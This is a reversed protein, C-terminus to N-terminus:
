KVVVKEPNSLHSYLLIGKLLDEARNLQLDQIKEVRARDEPSLSYLGGLSRQFTLAAEEEDTMPVVVDPTIGHEHIVRHSPTYYKATTLKLASGDDLPFISQVSGKGFTKEGLIVARHLDQLCGTVIESASASGLNVLVVMPMGKVEDGHGDARRTSNQDPDRGETTVVLQGRPLFKSCVGVAEDLLGGPNGRLDLILAQMGEAKLTKLADELEDSTNDGFSTIRIYGIKDPGLPFDKKGNIDKVMDVNIVARTLTFDRTTGSSPRQITVTVQTDPKGRLMKVADPLAMKEASRGNIKIIRDGALIGARFGPTDDMPTVVTVYNDKMTVVLGLGGFEGETDSQLEQYEEPDMFESHPDLSDIMGKLADYVLDHYTLNTGDVYDTRVKELVNAFLELNPYVSDKSEAAQASSLYIHAGIALNLLVAAVVLGYILRRKM